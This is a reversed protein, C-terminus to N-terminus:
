AIGALKTSMEQLDQALTSLAETLRLLRSQTTPDPVKNLIQARSPGEPAPGYFRESLLKLKERVGNLQDLSRELASCHEDLVPISQAMTAVGSM